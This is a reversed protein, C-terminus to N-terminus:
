WSIITNYTQAYEIKVKFGKEELFKITSDMLKKKILSVKNEGEWRADNILHYVESLESHLKSKSIEDSVKRADNATFYTPEGEIKPM